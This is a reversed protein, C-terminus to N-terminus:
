EIVNMVSFAPISAPKDDSSALANVSCVHIPAARMARVDSSSRAVRRRLTVEGLPVVSAAILEISDLLMLFSIASATNEACSRPLSNASCNPM